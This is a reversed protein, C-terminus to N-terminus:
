YSHNKVFGVLSRLHKNTQRFQQQKKPANLDFWLIKKWYKISSHITASRNKEKM